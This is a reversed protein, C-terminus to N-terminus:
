AAPTLHGRDVGAGGGPRPPPPRPASRAAAARADLVQEVVRRGVAAVARHVERHEEVDLPVLVEGGDVHLVLDLQGLRLQGLLHPLVADRDLLRLLVDQEHHRDPRVVRAVVRLVEGVVELEVDLVLELPQVAHAVGRDEALELERHQDREVRVPHRLETVTGSITAATRSCFAVLGAPPDPALRRRGAGLEGQRDRGLAPEGVGFSYSCIMTRALRSPQRSRMPSM